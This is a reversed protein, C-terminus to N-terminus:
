KKKSFMELLPAIYDHIQVLVQLPKRVYLGFVEAFYNIKNVTRNVAIMLRALVIVLILFGVGFCLYMIELAHALLYDM